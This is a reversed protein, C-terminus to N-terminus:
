AVILIMCVKLFMSDLSRCGHVSSSVTVQELLYPALTAKLQDIKKQMPNPAPTYIASAKKKLFFFPHSSCNKNNILLKYMDQSRYEGHM